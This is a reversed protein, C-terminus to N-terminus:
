DIAMGVLSMLVDMCKCGHWKLKPKSVCLFYAIYKSCPVRLPRTLAQQIFEGLRHFNFCSSVWGFPAALRRAMMIKGEGKWASWSCWSHHQELPINRFASKLGRKWIILDVGGDLLQLVITILFELGQVKTKWRSSTAQKLWREAGHDFPRTRWNGISDKWERVPIRRSILIDKRSEETPVVPETMFGKEADDLALKVIDKSFETKEMMSTAKENLALRNKWPNNMSQVDHDAKTNPVMGVVSDEMPGVVPFGKQRRGNFTTDEFTMEETAINILPGHVNRMMNRFDKPVGKLWRRRDPELQAALAAYRELAKERWADVEDSDTELEFAIADWWHKDAEVEPFGMMPHTTGKAWTVQEHINLGTQCDVCEIVFPGSGREKGANQWTSTDDVAREYHQAVEEESEDEM